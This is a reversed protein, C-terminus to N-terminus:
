RLELRLKITPLWELDLISSIEELKDIANADTVLWTDDSLKLNEHWTLKITDIENCGIGLYLLDRADKTTNPRFSPISTAVEAIKYNAADYAVANMYFNAFNYSSSNVAESRVICSDGSNEEPFFRMSIKEASQSCVAGLRKLVAYQEDDLRKFEVEELHCSGADAQVGLCLFVSLLLIQSVTKKYVAFLTTVGLLILAASWMKIDGAASVDSAQMFGNGSAAEVMSIFRYGIFINVLGFVSCIALLVKSAGLKTLYVIALLIFTPIALLIHPMFWYSVTM